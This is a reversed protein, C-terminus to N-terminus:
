LPTSDVGCRRLRYWLRGPASGTCQADQASVRTGREIEAHGDSEDSTNASTVTDGRSKDDCRERRADPNNDRTTRTGGQDLVPNELCSEQRRNQSERWTGQKFLDQLWLTEQQSTGFNKHSLPSKSRMRDHTLRVDRLLVLATCAPLFYWCSFSLLFVGTELFCQSRSPRSILKRVECGNLLFFFFPDDVRDLSVYPADSADVEVQRDECMEVAQIHVREISLPSERLASKRNFAGNRNLRPRTVAVERADREVGRRRDVPISGPM